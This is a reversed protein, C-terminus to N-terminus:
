DPMISRPGVSRAAAVDIWRRPLKVGLRKRGYDFSKISGVLCKVVRALWFYHELDDGLSNNLRCPAPLTIRNAQDLGRESPM